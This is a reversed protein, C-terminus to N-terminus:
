PHKGDPARALDSDTVSDFAMSPQASDIPSISKGNECQVCTVNLCATCMDSGPTLCRYFLLRFLAGRGGAETCAAPPASRSVTVRICPETEPNWHSPAARIEHSTNSRVGPALSVAVV